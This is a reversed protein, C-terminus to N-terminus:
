AGACQFAAWAHPDRFPPDSPLTKLYDTLRQALDRDGGTLELLARGLASRPADRLWRQAALLAEAKRRGERRWLQYARWMLLAAALDNVSWLSCWVTPGGALLFGTHLGLSADGTAEANSVGSECASLSVLENGRLDATAIIEELTWPEGNALRLASRLPQAPDFLGHCCLHLTGVTRDAAAQLVATRGADPGILCRPPSGASLLHRLAAVELEAGPLDGTPNAVICVARAASRRDARALCTAYISLSPVISVTALADCLYRRQGPAPGDLTYCAHLPLLGLERDPVLVLRNV